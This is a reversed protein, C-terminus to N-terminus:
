GRSSEAADKYVRALLPCTSNYSGDTGTLRKYVANAHEPDLGEIGIRQHLRGPRLLAQDLEINRANTTVIVHINLMQGIFGDAINLLAQISSMNDNMRNILCSDGDEILMLLPKSTDRGLLVGLLQPGALDVLLQPPVFWSNVGELEHLLGQLLHTKGTGAEGNIITLRGDPTKSRLNNLLEDIQQVAHDSYNERVLPRTVKGLARVSIGLGEQVLVEVVGAEHHEELETACLEGIIDIDKKNLTDINITVGDCLPTGAANGTLPRCTNKHTERYIDLNVRVASHENILLYFTHGSLESHMVIPAKLRESLQHLLSEVDTRKRYGSYTKAHVCGGNNLAQRLLERVGLSSPDYHTGIPAEITNRWWPNTPM